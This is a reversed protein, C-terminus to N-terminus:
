YFLTIYGPHASMTNTCITSRSETTYVESPIEMHPQQVHMTLKRQVKHYLTHTYRHVSNTTHLTLTDTYTCANTCTHTHTLSFSNCKLMTYACDFTELWLILYLFESSTLLVGVSRRCMELSEYMETKYYHLVGM